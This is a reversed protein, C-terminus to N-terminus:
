VKYRKTLDDLDEFDPIQLQKEPLPKNQRLIRECEEISKQLPKSYEDTIVECSPGFKETASTKSSEGFAVKVQSVLLIFAIGFIFFKVFKAIKM